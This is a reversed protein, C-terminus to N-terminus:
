GEANFFVKYFHMKKEDDYSAEDFNVLQESFANKTSNHKNGVKHIIFKSISANKRNIM